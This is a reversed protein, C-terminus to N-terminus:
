CTPQAIIAAPGGPLDDMCCCSSSGPVGSNRMVRGLAPPTARPRRRMSIPPLPVWLNRRSSPEGTAAESHGPSPSWPRRERADSRSLPARASTGPSGCRHVTARSMTQLEEEAAASHDVAVVGGAGLGPPGDVTVREGVVEGGRPPRRPLCPQHAAGVHRPVVQHPLQPQLLSQDREGAGMQRTDLVAVRGLARQAAEDLTAVFSSGGVVLLATEDVLEVREEGLRPDPVGHRGYTVPLQVDAPDGPLGHLGRGRAAQRVQPAGHGPQGAAVRVLLKGFLDLLLEGHLVVDDVQGADQLCQVSQGPGHRSRALVGRQGRRGGGLHRRLPLDDQRLDGVGQSGFEEDVPQGPQLFHTFEERVLPLQHEVPRGAGALGVQGHLQRLVEASAGFLDLDDLEVGRVGVLVEELPEPGRLVGLRPLHGEPQRGSREPFEGVEGGALLRCM